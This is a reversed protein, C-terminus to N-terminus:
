IGHACLVPVQMQRKYRNAPHGTENHPGVCSGNNAVAFVLFVRSLNQPFICIFPSSPYFNALFFDRATPTAHM